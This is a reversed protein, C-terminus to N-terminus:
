FYLEDSRLRLYKNLAFYASMQSIIIGILLVLSYVMAILDLDKLSIIASLENQISYIAATLLLIALVAAILGDLIIRNVFPRRIFSRTAGVLQMTNILFRQSYIALRITNNILAVSVIFLLLCFLLLVITIKRVNENVLNVLDKQYIVEKIQPYAKFENEIVLLSDPNAYEAKLKVEISALLPNYGLFEIFDEGLENQLEEAAKEKDIYNTSKVYETADLYKQIRHVDVDKADDKLIISFGINERVYDSIQDGSFILIGMIGILFLVLTISITVTFHSNVVGVRKRRVRRKAM